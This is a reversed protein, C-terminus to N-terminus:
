VCKVNIRSGGFREQWLTHSLIVVPNSGAQGDGARFGTGLQQRVGLFDFLGASTTAGRLRLPEDAVRLNHPGTSYAEIRQFSSSNEKLIHLLQPSPSSSFTGDESELELYVMGETNSGSLPRLIVSDVLTFMTTSMGVGLILTIIGAAAFVPRKRLARAGFRLDRLLDELIHSSSEDRVREAHWDTSGFALHAQRRAEAPDMGSRLNSAIEMDLHFQFEEQTDADRSGRRFFSQIGQVVSKLWSMM